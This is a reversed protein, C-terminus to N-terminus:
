VKDAAEAMQVELEAFLKEQELNAAEQLERHTADLEEIGASLKDQAIALDETYIKDLNDKESVYTKIHEDLKEQKTSLFEDLQEQATLKKAGM